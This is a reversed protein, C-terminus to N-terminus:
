IVLVQVARPIVSRNKMGVTKVGSENAAESRRSSMIGPECTVSCPGLSGWAAADTGGHFGELERPSSIKWGSLCLMRINITLALVLFRKMQNRM